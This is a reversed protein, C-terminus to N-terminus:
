IGIGNFIQKAIPNRHERAELISHLPTTYKSHLHEIAILLQRSHQKCIAMLPKTCYHKAM